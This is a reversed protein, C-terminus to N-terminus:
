LRSVTAVGEAELLSAVFPLPDETGPVPGLPEASGGRVVSNTRVRGATDTAAELFACLTHNSSLVFRAEIEAIEAIEADIEAGSGDPTSPAGGGSRLRLLMRWASVNERHDTGSSEDRGTQLMYVAGLYPVRKPTLHHRPASARPPPPRVQSAFHPSMALRQRPAPSSSQEDDDQLRKVLTARAGHPSLGRDQCLAQVAVYSISDYDYTHGWRTAAAPWAPAAPAAPPWPVARLAEVLERHAAALLAPDDPPTHWAFLPVMTELHSRTWTDVTPTGVARTWDPTTEPRTEPGAWYVGVPFGSLPDRPCARCLALADRVRLTLDLPLPLEAGVLPREHEQGRAHLTALLLRQFRRHLPIAVEVAAADRRKREIAEDAAAELDALSRGAPTEDVVHEDEDTEAFGGSSDSEYEFEYSGSSSSSQEEWDQEQEQEQEQELEPEPEPEM